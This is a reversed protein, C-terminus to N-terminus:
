PCVAPLAHGTSPLGTQLARQSPAMMTWQQHAAKAVAVANHWLQVASASRTNLAISTRQLWEHITRTISTADGGKIQLKPLASKERKFDIKGEEMVPAHQPPPHQVNPHLCTQPTAPSPSAFVPCAAVQAFGIGSLSPLSSSSASLGSPYVLSTPTATQQLRERTAAWPGRLTGPSPTVPQLQGITLQSTFGPQIPTTLTPTFSPAGSGVRGEELLRVTQRAHRLEDERALQQRSASAEAEELVAKATAQEQAVEAAMSNESERAALDQFPLHSPPLHRSLLAPQQMVPPTLPSPGAPLSPYGQLPPEQEQQPDSTEAEEAPETECWEEWARLEEQAEQHELRFINTEVEAQVTLINEREVAEEGGKRGTPPGGGM